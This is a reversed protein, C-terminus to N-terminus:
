PRGAYEKQLETLSVLRGAAKDKLALKTRRNVLAIFGPDERIRLYEAFSLVQTLKDEPLARLVKLVKTLVLATAAM